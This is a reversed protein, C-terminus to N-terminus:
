FLGIPWILQGMVRHPILTFAGAILLGWLTGLMGQRHAQIRGARAARVSSVLSWLVYVSLVHIPGYGGPFWHITRIWFSSVATLGMLGVWAYGLWRHASFGKRSLLAGAGLVTAVLATAAHVLVLPSLDLHDAVRILQIILGIAVVAPLLVWSCGPVRSHTQITM